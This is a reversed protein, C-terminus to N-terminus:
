ETFDTFDNKGEDPTALTRLRIRSVPSWGFQSGIANVAALKQMVVKQLPHTKLAVGNKTMEEVVYGEKQLQRQCKILEAYEWAYLTLADVDIEELYGMAFLQQVKETYIKKAEGTLHSPTKVDVLSQVAPVDNAVVERCKRSTGRMKKVKDPLPPRGM